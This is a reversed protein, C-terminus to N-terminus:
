QATVSLVPIVSIQVWHSLGDSLARYQTINVRSPPVVVDRNGRWWGLINWPGNLGEVVKIVTHWASISYFYLINQKYVPDCM